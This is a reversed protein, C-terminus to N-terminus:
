VADPALVPAHKGYFQLVPVGHGQDDNGSSMNGRGGFWEFRVVLKIIRTTDPTAKAEVAHAQGQRCASVIALCPALCAIAVSDEAEM